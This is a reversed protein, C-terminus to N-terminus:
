PLAEVIVRAKQWREFDSAMKPDGTVLELLKAIIENAGVAPLEAELASAVASIELSIIGSSDENRINIKQPHFRRGYAILIVNKDVETKLRGDIEFSAKVQQQLEPISFANLSQRPSQPSRTVQKKFRIAM